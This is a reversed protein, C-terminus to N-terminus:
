NTATVEIGRIISSDEKGVVPIEEVQIGQAAKLDKLLANRVVGDVKGVIEIGQLIKKEGNGAELAEEPSDV